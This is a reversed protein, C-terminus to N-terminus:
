YKTLWRGIACNGEEYKTLNEVCTNNNCFNDPNFFTCNNLKSNISNCYLFANSIRENIGDITAQYTMSWSAVPFAGQLIFSMTLMKEYGNLGGLM